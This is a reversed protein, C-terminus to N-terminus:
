AAQRLSEEISSCLTRLELPGFDRRGFRLAESTSIVDLLPEANTGLQERLAAPTVENEPVGWRKAFHVVILRRASEFFASASGGKASRRLALHLAREPDRKWGFRILTAGLLLAFVPALRLGITKPSDLLANPAPPPLSPQLAIEGANATVAPVPAAAAAQIEVAAPGEVNLAIPATAVTTYRGSVPDFVPLEVPPITLAGGHTPILIQEFTKHGLKKGPTTPESKTSMPYTKWDRSTAVGGLEVRDLDGDGKLTATLTLPENARASSTSLSARLEFHGVAGGFTAPQDAVPLGQVALLRSSAKLTLAEDHAPGVLPEDFPMPFSRQMSRFVRQISSPDTPDINMMTQMPDEDSEPERAVPTPAADHFRYRVPLEVSLELPGATSPTITGTWTAVLMPEGNVLQTAQKPERALDSTFVSESKIQPLGELTVGEVDRFRASITVPISQGLWAKARGVELHLSAHSNGVSQRSAPVPVAIPSSAASVPTVGLALLAVVAFAGVFTRHQRM